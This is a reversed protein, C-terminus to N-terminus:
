SYRTRDMSSHRRLVEQVTKSILAHMLKLEAQGKKVTIRCIGFKSKGSSGGDNFRVDIRKAPINIVQSWHAACVSESMGTFIRITIALSDDSIGLVERLIKLYVRIMDADTNTFICGNTKHGEAWYLMGLITLFHKHPGELLGEARANAININNEKRIRSGGQNSRLKVKQLKTLRIKKVHHWITTKPLNLTKM